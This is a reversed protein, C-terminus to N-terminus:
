TGRKTFFALLIKLIFLPQVLSNLVLLEVTSLRGRKYSKGSKAKINTQINWPLLIIIKQLLLFSFPFVRYRCWLLFNFIKTPALFTPSSSCDRIGNPFHNLYLVLHLCLCLLPPHLLTLAMCKLRALCTSLTQICKHTLCLSLSVSLNPSLSLFISVTHFIHLRLPLSLFMSVFLCLFMSVSVCLRSLSVSLCLCVFLSCLFSSISDCMEM